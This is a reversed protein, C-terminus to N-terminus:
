IREVPFYLYKKGTSILTLEHVAGALELHNEKLYELGKAFANEINSEIRIYEYSPIIWKTWGDPPIVAVDCEAGALYLGKSFDDQWPLFSHTIDSMTGWIGLPTGDKNSKIINVIESFHANADEWLKQIFGTGDETSGEKGLVAFSSKIIKECNM